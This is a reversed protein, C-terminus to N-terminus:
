NEIVVKANVFCVPANEEFFHYDGTTLNVANYSDGVNDELLETKIHYSRCAVFFDSVCIHKFLINTPNRNDVIQM